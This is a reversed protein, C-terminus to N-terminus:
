GTKCQPLYLCFRNENSDTCLGSCLSLAKLLAVNRCNQLGTHVVVPSITCSQIDTESVMSGATNHVMETQSNTSPSEFALKVTVAALSVM